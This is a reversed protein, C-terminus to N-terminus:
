LDECLRERGARILQFVNSEQPLIEPGYEHMNSIALALVLWAALIHALDFRREKLSSM